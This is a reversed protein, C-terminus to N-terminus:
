DNVYKEYFARWGIEECEDCLAEMNEIVDKLVWGTRQETPGTSKGKTKYPSSPIFNRTQLLAAQEVAWCNARTMSRLWWVRTYQGNFSRHEVDFTIGIKDVSKGVEVIYIWCERAAYEPNMEYAIHGEDKKNLGVVEKRYCGCSVIHGSKLADTVVTTENGCICQCLWKVHQGQKVKKTKKIVTLRGFTEGVLNAKELHGCSKADGSKLQNARIAKTNGCSCKCLWHVSQHTRVDSEGIVTLEGFVDGISIPNTERRKATEKVRDRKLCGCSKTNGSRLSGTSCVCIEGCECKCLWKDGAPGLVTLREYRHDTLDLRRM